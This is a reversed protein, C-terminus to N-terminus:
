YLKVLTSYNKKLYNCKVRVRNAESGEKGGM